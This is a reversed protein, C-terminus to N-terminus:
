IYTCKKKYKAPVNHVKKKGKASGSIDLFL